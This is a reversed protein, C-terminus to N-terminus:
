PHLGLKISPFTCRLSTSAGGAPAAGTLTSSAANTAQWLTHQVNALLSSSDSGSAAVPAARPQQSEIDGAAYKNWEALVSAPPEAPDSSGALGKFFEM